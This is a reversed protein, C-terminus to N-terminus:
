YESVVTLNNFCPRSKTKIYTIEHKKDGFRVYTNYIFWAEYCCVLNYNNDMDKANEQGSTFKIVISFIEHQASSVPHIIRFFLFFLCM